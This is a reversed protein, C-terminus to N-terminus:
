KNNDNIEFIISPKYRIKNELYSAQFLIEFDNQLKIPKDFEIIDFYQSYYYDSKKNFKIAKIIKLNKNINNNINTKLEYSYDNQIYIKSLYINKLNENNKLNINIIKKPNLKDLNFEEINNIYYYKDTKLNKIKDKKLVDKIVLKLEEKYEKLIIQKLRDVSTIEKKKYRNLANSKIKFKLTNLIDKTLLTDLKKLNFLNAKEKKLITEFDTDLNLDFNDLNMDDNSNNNNNNNIQSNNPNAKNLDKININNSEKSDVMTNTNNNNNDKENACSILTFISIMILTIFIIRKM